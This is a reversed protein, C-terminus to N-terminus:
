LELWMCTAVSAVASVPAGLHNHRTGRHRAQHARGAGTRHEHLIGSQMATM